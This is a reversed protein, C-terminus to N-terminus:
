RGLRRLMSMMQNPRENTLRRLGHEQETKSLKKERQKLFENSSLHRIWGEATNWTGSDYGIGPRIRIEPVHAAFRFYNIDILEDDRSFSKFGMMQANTNHAHLEPHTTKERFARYLAELFHEGQLVETGVPVPWGAFRPIRVNGYDDVRTYSTTPMFLQTEGNVRYLPFGATVQGTSM